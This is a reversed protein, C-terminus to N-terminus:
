LWINTLIAYQLQILFVQFYNLFSNLIFPGQCDQSEVQWCFGSRPYKRGELIGLVYGLVANYRDKTEDSLPMTIYTKTKSKLLHYIYISRDSIIFFFRRRVVSPPLNYECVPCCASPAAAAPSSTVAATVAIVHKIKNKNQYYYSAAANTQHWFSMLNYNPRIEINNQKIDTRHWVLGYWYMLRINQLSLGYQRGIAPRSWIRLCWCNSRLSQEGHYSSTTTRLLLLLLTTTTTAASRHYYNIIKRSLSSKKVLQAFGLSAVM